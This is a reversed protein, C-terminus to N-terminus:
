DVLLRSEGCDKCTVGTRDGFSGVSVNTSECKNCKISDDEDKYKKVNRM